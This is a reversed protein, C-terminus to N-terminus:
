KALSAAYEILWVKPAISIQLAQLMYSIAFGTVFLSAIGMIIIYTAFLVADDTEESIKYTKFAGWVIVLQFM